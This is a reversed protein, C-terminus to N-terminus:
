QSSCEEARSLRGDQIEGLIQREVLVARDIASKCGIWIGMLSLSTLLNFDDQGVHYFGLDLLFVFILQAHHRTGTTGAVQSSSAPSDSSGPFSLNCHALIAGSCELRAVSCVQQNYIYVLPRAHHSMGTIGAGQSALAPPDNSALRELDPQGVHSFGTEVLFVFNALCTPVHKYGWSSLFSLYSFQKFMLPPLQLSSLNCWQVGPQTVTFGPRWRSEKPQRLVERHLTYPVPHGFARSTGDGCPSCFNSASLVSLLCLQVRSPGARHPLPAGLIENERGREKERENKKKKRKINREKEKQSYDWCEPLGLCASQRLEPTQSWGPCCLSVGDRSFYLFNALRLPTCRHDWSSLLSLCSFQKFRPPPPQLSGLDCGQVGAQTAFYSEMMASWGPHCLSLLVRYGWSSLLSHCSFKKFDPPLPQLPGLSCWQVRAQVVSHSKTDKLFTYLLFAPQTHHRLSTIGASKSALAPLDGLTLFELGAQGIHHFGMKVLFVFILQDYHCASTTGAVRSASVLSNIVQVWSPPTATLWSQAVASWGLCCLSIQSASTSLSSSGLLEVDAQAVHCFGTKPLRFYSFHKFGPPPPQRLGLCCRPAGALIFSRSKIQLGLVKSALAPPGGSNLLELCAEGVHHFGIEVLFVFFQSPTTTPVQVQSHLSFLDHWRVGAETVTHSKWYLLIPWTHHSTGKIGANQSAWPPSDSLNLLELGTHDVHHFGM